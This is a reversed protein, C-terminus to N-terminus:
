ASVADVISVTLGGLIASAFDPRTPGYRGWIRHSGARGAVIVMHVVARRQCLAHCDALRAVVGLNVLPFAKWGSLRYASAASLPLIVRTGARVGALFL